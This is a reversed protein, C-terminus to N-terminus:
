ATTPRRGTPRRHPPRSWTSRTPPPRHDLPFSLVAPVLGALAPLVGIRAASLYGWGAAIAVGGLAAGASNAVNSASQNVAAGMLQAGPAVAILRAQLAPRAYVTIVWVATAM